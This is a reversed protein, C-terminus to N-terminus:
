ANACVCVRDRGGRYARGGIVVVMVVVVVVVELVVMAVVVAVVAGSVVGPKPDRWVSKAGKSM